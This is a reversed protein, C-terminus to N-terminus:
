DEHKVVYEYGIIEECGNRKNSCFFKLKDLMNKLIPVCRIERFNKCLPCSNPNRNLWERICFTCFHNLCNGCAIPNQYIYMCITCKVFDINETSVALNDTGFIYDRDDSHLLSNM